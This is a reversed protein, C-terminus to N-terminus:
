KLIHFTSVIKHYISADDSKDDESLQIDHIYEPGAVYTDIFYAGGGPFPGEQQCAEYGDIM